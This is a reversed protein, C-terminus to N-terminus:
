LAFCIDDVVTKNAQLDGIALRHLFYPFIFHRKSHNNNM